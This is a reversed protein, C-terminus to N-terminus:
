GPPDAELSELEGLIDTLNVNDEGKFRLKSRVSSPLEIIRLDNGNVM